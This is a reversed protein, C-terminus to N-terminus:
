YLFSCVKSLGMHEALDMSLVAEAGLKNENQGKLIRGATISATAMGDGLFLIVNKAVKKKRNQLKLAM